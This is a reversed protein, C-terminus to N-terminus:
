WDNHEDTEDHIEGLVEEIVNELTVLGVTNQKHDQVIALHLKEQQLMPYLDSLLMDKKVFLIKRMIDKAKLKGWKSKPFSIIDKTILFGVINDDDGIHV